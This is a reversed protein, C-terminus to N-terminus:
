TGESPPTDSWHNFHTVSEPPPRTAPKFDFGVTYGVPLMAMQVIDEPLGLVARSEEEFALHMTTLVSGLGRARLALQFSWVAPYISAFYASALSLPAGEPLRGELCPIVLAPVEGLREAFERADAYVRVTQEDPASKAAEELLPIGRAYVEGLRRKQDPDDVIIWRWHQKNTATPAQQSLRVCDLLLERPVPRSLDLRRRVARTTSLLRDTTELSFPTESM